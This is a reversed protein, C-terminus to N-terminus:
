GRVPGYEELCWLTVHAETNNLLIQCTVNIFGGTDVFTGNGPIFGPLAATGLVNEALVTINPAVNGAGADILDTQSGVRSFQVRFLQLSSRGVPLGAGSADYASGTRALIITPVSFQVQQTTTAAAVGNGGFVLSRFRPFYVVDPSNALRVFPPYAPVMQYPIGAAMNAARSDPALQTANIANPGTGPRSSQGTSPVGLDPENSSALGLASVGFNQYGRWGQNAM